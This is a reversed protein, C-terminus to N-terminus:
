NGSNEFYDNMEQDLQEVTKKEKKPKKAPKKKPAAKKPKNSVPKVGIRAQLSKKSAPKVPKLADNSTIRSSLPRKTPDM